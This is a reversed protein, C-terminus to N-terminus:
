FDAIQVIRGKDELESAVLCVGGIVAHKGFRKALIDVHRMGNLVPLIMTEPGVAATMDSLVSELSFAKVTLLLADYFGSLRDATVLQPRLTYDGHPSLIELGREELRAARAPRVLFTVDRGAQALRGGFYGGTSGAGVVLMRM